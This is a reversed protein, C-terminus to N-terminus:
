NKNLYPIFPESTLLYAILSIEECHIDSGKLRVKIVTAKNLLGDIQKDNYDPIENIIHFIKNSITLASDLKSIYIYTNVNNKFDNICILADIQKLHNDCLETLKKSILNRTCAPTPKESKGNYPLHFFMTELTLKNCM